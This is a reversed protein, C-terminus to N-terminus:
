TKNANLLEKNEYINGIKEYDNNLAFLRYNYFEYNWKVGWLGTSHWFIYGKYKNDFVFKIIDGEYIEKGNKDKLGTYQMLIIDKHGMSVVWSNDGWEIAIEYRYYNLLKVDCMKKDQKNWARFKIERM